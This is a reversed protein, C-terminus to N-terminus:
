ATVRPSVKVKGYLVRDKTGNPYTVFIDYAYSIDSRGPGSQKKIPLAATDAPTLTVEVEGKNTAQNLINFSFSALIPTQGPGTRIQGSYVYGTLDVLAPVSDKITLKRYFSAGQEIEFDLNAAGM